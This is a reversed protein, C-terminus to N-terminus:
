QVQEKAILVIAAVNIGIALMAAIVAAIHWVKRKARHIRALVLGVAGLLLAPVALICGVWPIWALGLAGFSMMAAIVGLVRLGKSDSPAKSKAKPEAPKTQSRKKREVDGVPTVEPTVESALPTAPPLVPPSPIEPPSPEVAQMLPVQIEQECSRCKMRKGAFKEGVSYEKGCNDCQVKLM